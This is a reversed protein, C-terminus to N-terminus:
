PFDGNIIPCSVIEVPVNEITINSWWLTNSLILHSLFYQVYEPAIWPHNAVHTQFDSPIRGCKWFWMYIQFNMWIHIFCIDHKYGYIKIWIYHTCIYIHIYIYIDMNFTHPIHIFTIICGYEWYMGISIPQTIISIGRSNQLVYYDECIEVHEAIYKIYENFVIVPQKFIRKNETVM